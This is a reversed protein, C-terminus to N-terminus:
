YVRFMNGDWFYTVSLTILFDQKRFRSIRRDERVDSSDGFVPNRASRWEFEPNVTFKGYQQYLGAGLRTLGGHSLADDATRLRHASERDRYVFHKGQWRIFGYPLFDEFLYGLKLAAAMDSKGIWDQDNGFLDSYVPSFVPSLDEFWEMGRALNYPSKGAKSYTIEGDIFWQDVFFRANGSAAMELLAGTEETKNHGAVQFNFMTPDHISPGKYTVGFKYGFSENRQWRDAVANQRIDFDDNSPYLYTALGFGVYAKWGRHGHPRYNFEIGPITKNAMKEDENQDFTVSSPSGEIYYLRAVDWTNFERGVQTDFNFPFFIFGFGREKQYSIFTGRSDLDLGISQGGNDNLNLEADVRIAFERYHHGGVIEFRSTKNDFRNEIPDTEFRLRGYTREDHQYRLAMDVEVQDGLETKRGRSYVYEEYSARELYLGTKEWDFYARDPHSAMSIPMPLLLIALFALTLKPSSFRQSVFLPRTSTIIM